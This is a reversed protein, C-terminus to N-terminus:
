LREMTIAKVPCESVCIGCGKCYDLNIKVGDEVREIAGDPCYIWCLLCRTCKEQNIKPTFPGRWDGTKYKLSSKPEPLIGAIPLTQWLPKKESM